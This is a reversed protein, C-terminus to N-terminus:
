LSEPDLKLFKLLSPPLAQIPVAIAGMQTLRRMVRYRFQGLWRQPLSLTPILYSYDHQGRLEAGVETSRVADFVQILQQALVPYGLLEALKVLSEHSRDVFQRRKAFNRCYLIGLDLHEELENALRMLVVYRESLGMQELQHSIAPITQANWQLTTYNAVYAEVAQGSVQRVRQRKALSIGRVGNGFEGFEYVAHLLGAVVIAIPANLSALISATGVLHAVFTKGSGRFYGSFLQTVLQYARAVDNLDADSYGAQRLQTLLQLNTQAFSHM